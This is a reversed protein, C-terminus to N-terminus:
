ASSSSAYFKGLLVLYPIGFLIAFPGLFGWLVPFFALPMIGLISNEAKRLQVLMARLTERTEKWDAELTVAEPPLFSPVPAAVQELNPPTKPDVTERAPVRVASGESPSPQGVPSAQRDAGAPHHPEALREASTHRVGSREPKPRRPNKPAAKPLLHGGCHECSTSDEKQRPLLYTTAGCSACSRGHRERVTLIWAIQSAEIEDGLVDKLELGGRNAERLAQDLRAKSLFERQRAIVHFAFNASNM